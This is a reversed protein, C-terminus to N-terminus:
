IYGQQNEELKSSYNVCNIWLSSYLFPIKMFNYEMWSSHHKLFVWTNQMICHQFFHFQMQIQKRELSWKHKPGLSLHYQTRPFLGHLICQHIWKSVVSGFASKGENVRCLEEMVGLKLVSQSSFNSKILTPLKYEQNFFNDIM